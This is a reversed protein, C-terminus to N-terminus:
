HRVRDHFLQHDEMSAEGNRLMTMFGRALSNKDDLRAIFMIQMQLSNPTWREAVLPKISYQNLRNCLYETDYGKRLGILLHTLIRHVSSYNKPAKCKAIKAEYADLM